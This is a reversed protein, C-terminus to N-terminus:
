PHEEREREKFTKIEDRHALRQSGFGTNILLPKNKRWRKIDRNYFYRAPNGNWKAIAGREKVDVVLVSFVSTTMIVTNGMRQRKVDWVVMGPQLDQIKM